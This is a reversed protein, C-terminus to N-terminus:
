GARAPADADAEACDAWTVVVINDTHSAEGARIKAAIADAIAADTMMFGGIIVTRAVPAFAKELRGLREAFSRKM